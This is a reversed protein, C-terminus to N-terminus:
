RSSLYRHAPGPSQSHKLEAHDSRTGAPTQRDHAPPSFGRGQSPAPDASRGRVGERDAQGMSLSLRHAVRAIHPMRPQRGPFSRPRSEGDGAEGVKLWGHSQSSTRSSILLVGCARTRSSTRITPLTPCSREGPATAPSNRCRCPLGPSTNRWPRDPRTIAAKWICPPTWM